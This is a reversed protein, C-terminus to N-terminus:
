FVSDLSDKGPRLEYSPGSGTSASGVSAGETSSAFYASHGTCQVAELVATFYM